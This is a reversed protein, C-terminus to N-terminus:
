SIYPTMLPEIGLYLKPELLRFYFLSEQQLDPFGKPNLSEGSLLYYGTDEM